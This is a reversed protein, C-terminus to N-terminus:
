KILLRMIHYKQYEGNVKKKGIAENVKEFKFEEYIRIATEQTKVVALYISPVGREKTHEVASKLLEYGIKKGRMTPSVFFLRFWARNLLLSYKKVIIMGVIKKDVEALLVRKLRNESTEKLLKKDSILIDNEPTMGGFAIPDATLAEIRLARYEKIRDPTLPIIKLHM